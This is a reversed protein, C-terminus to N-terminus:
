YKLECYYGPKLIEYLSVTVSDRSFPVVRGGPSMYVPGSDLYIVNTFYLSAM